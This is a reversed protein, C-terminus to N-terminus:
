RCCCCCDFYLCCCCGFRSLWFCLPLKLRILLWTINLASLKSFCIKCHDIANTQSNPLMATTLEIGPNFLLYSIFVLRAIFIFYFIGICSCHFSFLRDWGRLNFLPNLIGHLRGLDIYMQLLVSDNDYYCLHPCYDSYSYHYNLCNLCFNDFNKILYFYDSVYFDGGKQSPYLLIPKQYM